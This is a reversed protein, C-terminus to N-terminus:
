TPLDTVPAPAPAAVAAEDQCPQDQFNTKGGIVCKYVKAEAATVSLLAVLLLGARAIGFSANKMSAGQNFSCVRRPKGLWSCFRVREPWGFVPTSCSNPKPIAGGSEPLCPCPWNRRSRILYGECFVIALIPLTISM